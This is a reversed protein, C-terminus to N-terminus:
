YLSTKIDKLMQVVAVADNTEDQKISDKVLLSSLQDKIDKLHLTLVTLEEIIISQAQPLKDLTKDVKFDRQYEKLLDKNNKIIDKLTKLQKVLPQIVAFDTAASTTDKLKKIQPLLETDIMKVYINALKV